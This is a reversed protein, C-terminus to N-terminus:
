GLQERDHGADDDGDITMTPQPKGPPVTAGNMIVTKTKQHPGPSANTIFVYGLSYIAILPIKIDRKMVQTSEM